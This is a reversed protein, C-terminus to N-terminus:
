NLTKKPLPEVNFNKKAHTIVILKARLKRTLKEKM